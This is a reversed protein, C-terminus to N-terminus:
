KHLNNTKEENISDTTKSNNLIDCVGYCWMTHRIVLAYYMIYKKSKFCKNMDMM